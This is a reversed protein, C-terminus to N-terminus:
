EIFIDTRKTGIQGVGVGTSGTHRRVWGLRHERCAPNPWPFYVSWFTLFSFVLTGRSVERGGEWVSLFAPMTSVLSWGWERIFGLASFSFAQAAALRSVM